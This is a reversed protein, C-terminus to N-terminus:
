DKQWNMMLRDMTRYCRGDNKRNNQEDITRETMRAMM